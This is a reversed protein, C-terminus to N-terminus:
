RNHSAQRRKGIEIVNLVRKLFRKSKIAEVIFDKRQNGLKEFKLNYSAGWFKNGSDYEQQFVDLIEDDDLERWDIGALQSKQSMESKLLAQTEKIGLEPVFLFPRIKREKLHGYQRLAIEAIPLRSPLHERLRKQLSVLLNIQDANLSESHNEM